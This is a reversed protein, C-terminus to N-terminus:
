GDDVVIIEIQNKGFKQKKVRKILKKQIYSWWKKRIITSSKYHGGYLWLEHSDFILKAKCIRSILYGVTLTNLDNAYVIDPKSLIGIILSGSNFCLCNIFAIIIMRLKNNKIMSLLTSKHLREHLREEFAIQRPKAYISSFLPIRIVKEEGRHIVPLGQWPKAAIVTVDFGNEKLSRSINSVRKDITYDNWVLISVKKM